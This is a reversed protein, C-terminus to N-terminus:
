NVTGRWALARNAGDRFRWMPWYEEYLDGFARDYADGSRILTWSFNTGAINRTNILEAMLDVQWGAKTRWFFHPGVLPDETAYAIARDGRTVVEFQKGLEVYQMYEWLGPTVKYDNAMYDRSDDTFVGVRPLYVPLSLWLHYRTLAEEASAAPGIFAEVEANLVGRLRMPDDVAAKLSAGGGVALTISDRIQTIDGPQYDEALAFERMRHQLMMLTTQIALTVTTDQLFASTHGRLLRGLFADPFIGELSRGVEIRMDGSALDLCLLLGRRGSSSGVGLRRAETLTYRALDSGPPLSDLVIRVDVGSENMLAATFTNLQTFDAESLVEARDYVRRPLHQSWLVYGILLSGAVALILPRRAARPLTGM